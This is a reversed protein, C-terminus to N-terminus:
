KLAVWLPFLQVQLFCMYHCQPTSNRSRKKDKKRNVKTTIHLIIITYLLRSVLTRYVLFLQLIPVNALGNEIEVVTLSTVLFKDKGKIEREIINETEKALYELVETIEQTDYM